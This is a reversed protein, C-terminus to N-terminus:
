YTRKGQPSQDPKQAGRLSPHQWQPGALHGGNVTHPTGKTGYNPNPKPHQSGM